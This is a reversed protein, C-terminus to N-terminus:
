YYNKLWDIQDSHSEWYYSPNIGIVFEESSIAALVFDDVAWAIREIDEIKYEENIAFQKGHLTKTEGAINKIFCMPYSM